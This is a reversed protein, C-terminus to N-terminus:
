MQRGQKRNAFSLIITWFRRNYHTRGHCRTCLTILNLPDNDDKCYDIHHVSHLHDKESEGCLRCIYRDRRRIEAKLARNFEPSYPKFSIGGRWNPNNKGASQERKKARYEDTQFIDNYIGLAWNKRAAQSIGENRKKIWDGQAAWAAKMGISIKQKAEESAKKGFSSESIKRRWADGKADRLANLQRERYEQNQWLATM